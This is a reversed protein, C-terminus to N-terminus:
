PKIFRGFEDGYQSKVLYAGSPWTSIDLHKRIGLAIPNGLVNYVDVSQDTDFTIATTAPNPNALIKIFNNQLRHDMNVGVSSTEHGIAMIYVRSILGRSGHYVYEGVDGRLNFVTPPITLSDILYLSDVSLVSDRPEPTFRFVSDDGLEDFIVIPFFTTDHINAIVQRYTNQPCSWCFGCPVELLADTGMRNLQCLDYTNSCPDCEPVGAIEGYTLEMMFGDQAHFRVYSAWGQANATNTFSLCIIVIVTITLSFKAMKEEM